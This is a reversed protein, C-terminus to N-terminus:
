LIIAVRENNRAQRIRTAIQNSLFDDDCDNTCIYRRWFADNANLFFALFLFIGHGEGLVPSLLKNLALVFPAILMAAYAHISNFPNRERRAKELLGIADREFTIFSGEDCYMDKLLHKNEHFAAFIDGRITYARHLLITTVSILIAERLFM